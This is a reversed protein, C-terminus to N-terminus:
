LVSSARPSPADDSSTRSGPITHGLTRPRSSARLPKSQREAWSNGTNGPNSHIGRGTSRSRRLSSRNNFFHGRRGNEYRYSGLSSEFTSWLFCLFYLLCNTLWVARQALPHHLAFDLLYRQFPGFGFKRSILGSDNLEVQPDITKIWPQIEAYPRGLFDQDRFTPSSPGSFELAETIPSLSALPL